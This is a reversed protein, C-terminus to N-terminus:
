NKLMEKFVQMLQEDDIQNLEQETLANSTLLLERIQAPTLNQLEQIM